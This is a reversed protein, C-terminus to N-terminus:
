AGRPFRITWGDGAAEPEASGGLRAALADLTAKLKRSEVKAKRKDRGPGDYSARAAVDVGEARVSVYFMGPKRPKFSFRAAHYALEGIALGLPVATELGLRTGAAEAKVSVQEMGPVSALSRTAVAEAYPGFGIAHDKATALTAHALELVGARRIDESRASDEATELGEDSGAALSRSGMTEALASLAEAERRHVDGLYDERHALAAKLSDEREGVRTLLAELCNRLRDLELFGSPEVAAVIGATGPSWNTCVTGLAMAPKEFRAALRGAALAGLVIAAAGALCTAVRVWLRLAMFASAKWTVLASWEWGEVSRVAGVSPVGNLDFRFLRGGAERGREVLDLRNVRGAIEAPIPGATVVGTADLLRVAFGSDAPALRAYRALASLDVDVLVIDGGVARAVTVAPEESDASLYSPSVACPAGNGLATAAPTDGLYAGELTPNRPYAFAVGGDPGLVLLSKIFGFSDVAARALASRSAPDPFAELSASTWSAAEAVGDLFAATGAAAAEAFAIGRGALDDGIAPQVVTEEVFLVLLAPVLSCALCAALLWRYFPHSRKKM